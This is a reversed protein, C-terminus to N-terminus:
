GLEKDSEDPTNEEEEDDNYPQQDMPRLFLAKHEARDFERTWFSPKPAPAPSIDFQLAKLKFELKAITAVVRNKKAAMDRREEHKEWFLAMLGPGRSPVSFARTGHPSLTALERTAADSVHKDAATDSRARGTKKKPSTGQDPNVRRGRNGLGKNPFRRFLSRGLVSRKVPMEGAASDLAKEMNKLDKKLTELKKLWGRATPMVNWSRVQSSRLRRHRGLFKLFKAYNSIGIEGRAGYWANEM